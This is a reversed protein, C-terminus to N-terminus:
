QISIEAGQECGAQIWQSLLRFANVFPQPVGDSVVIAECLIRAQRAGKLDYPGFSKSSLARQILSRAAADDLLALFNTLSEADGLQERIGEDETPNRSMLDARQQLWEYGRDSAIAEMGATLAGVTCSSAIRGELNSIPEEDPYAMIGACNGEDQLREYTRIVQDNDRETLAVVTKGAAALVAALMPMHAHGEANIAQIGLQAAAVVENSEALAGWFVDFAARDGPGEVLVPVHCFLGSVVAGDMWREYTQRVPPTLASRLVCVDPGEASNKLLLFDDIEFARAIEPSHTVLFVQGGQDSISRLLKALQAQRLPELAEEPEEFAAIPPLNAAQALRILVSVLILRQAGRGQRILPINFDATPLVLRLAQLLERKSIAGVEFSPSLGEEILGLSALDTGLQALIPEIAAAENIAQAGQGMSERLGAVPEDLEDLDFLKELTGGQYFALQRAPERSRGDFVWGIQSRIRPGFRAGESEPKAFEHVLDMDDTGRVRVRIVPEINEGEPEPVVTRDNSHWGEVHRVHEAQFEDPLDGLVAEVSFGLATIRAFYDIESPAPRRRGLGHHFLTDLAELITSKCANNPGLIVNRDGPEFQMNAIGRFREITIQRIKLNRDESVLGRLRLV